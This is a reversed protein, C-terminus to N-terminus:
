CNAIIARLKNECNNWRDPGLSPSTLSAVYHELSSGLAKRFAKANICLTAPNFLPGVKWIRWGGTTEGQHHIGCRISVFFDHAVGALPEFAPDRGFFQRFAQESKNRSSPWGSYFSELSEIVLCCLAMMAFGSADREEVAEIPLFYRENFRARVFSAVSQRNGVDLWHQLSKVTVRPNRCLVVDEANAM